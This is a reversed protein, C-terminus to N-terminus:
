ERTGGAAAGTEMPNNPDVTWEQLSAAYVAVNKFGLRHLVFADSSAAIGGGCYTIARENRDINVLMDLEDYSRYRGSEDLLLSAPLSTAGTIHGPRAYMTMQGEYHEVPLADVINISSDGIAARVEDQDAILEPRLNISLDGPPRNAPETSLPRGEARWAGLGGDLLAANDFGIWRLMWWVRAAWVSLNADYLVVRSNDSVGLASMTAAFQEPTPIEFRLKDEGASLDGFFDAFGASPIHGSDYNARGNVMRFGTKEDPAVMVTCDIVVLDPDDLHESLWETSVLSDMAATAASIATGTDTGTDAVADVAQASQEDSGSCATLCALAAMLTLSRLTYNWLSM